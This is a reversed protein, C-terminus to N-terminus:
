LLILTLNYIIFTYQTELIISFMNIMFKADLYLYDNLWGYIWPGWSPDYAGTGLKSYSLM